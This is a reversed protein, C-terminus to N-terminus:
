NMVLKLIFLLHCYTSASSYTVTIVASYENWLVYTLFHTSYFSSVLSVLHLALLM